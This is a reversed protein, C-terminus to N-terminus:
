QFRGIFGPRLQMTEMAEFTGTENSQGADGGRMDAWDNPTFYETEKTEPYYVGIEDNEFEGSANTEYAIGHGGPLDGTWSLALDEYFLGPDDDMFAEIANEANKKEEDPWDHQSAADEIEDILQDIGRTPPEDISPEPTPAAPTPHIGGRRRAGAEMARQMAEDLGKKYAEDWDYGPEPEEQSTWAKGITRLWREWEEESMEGALSPKRKRRTTEPPGGMLSEGPLPYRKEGTLPDYGAM